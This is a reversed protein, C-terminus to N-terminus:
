FGSHISHYQAKIISIKKSKYFTLNIQYIL